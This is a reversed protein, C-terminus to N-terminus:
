EEDRAEHLPSVAVSMEGHKQRLEDRVSQAREQIRQLAEASAAGTAAHRAAEQLDALVDSGVPDNHTNM